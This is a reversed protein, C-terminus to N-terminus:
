GVASPRKVHAQSWAPPNSCSTVNADSAPSSSRLNPLGPPSLPLDLLCALLLVSLGGTRPTSGFFWAAGLALAWVTALQVALAGWYIHATLGLDQGTEQLGRSWEPGTLIFAYETGAVSTFPPFATMAATLVVAAYLIFSAVHSTPRPTEM